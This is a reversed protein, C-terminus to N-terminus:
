RKENTHKAPPSPRVPPVETVTQTSVAQAAKEKALSTQLEARRALAAKLQERIVEIREQLEELEGERPPASSSPAPAPAPSSSPPLPLVERSPPITPGGNECIRGVLSLRAPAREGEPAARALLRRSNLTELNFHVRKNDKPERSAGSSENNWKATAGTPPAAPPPQPPQVKQINCSPPRLFFVSM